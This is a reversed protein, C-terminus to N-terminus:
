VRGQRISYVRGDVISGVGVGVGVTTVGGVGSVGTGSGGRRDEDGRNLKSLLDVEEEWECEVGADEEGEEEAEGDGAEHPFVITIVDGEPCTVMGVKAWSSSITM